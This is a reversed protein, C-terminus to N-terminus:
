ENKLASVEKRLELINQNANQLQKNQDILYLTLEEIKQLLKADMEGLNIGNEAVEIESPIEPLHGKENIHQEVEDLSRLEYNNNFVFDPWGILDVKVEKTHITGNVSLKSDPNNTGIGVNGDDKLTLVASQDSTRFEFNNNGNRLGTHWIRGDGKRHFDVFSGKGAAGEVVYYAHNNSSEVLSKM